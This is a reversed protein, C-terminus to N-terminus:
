FNSNFKLTWIISHTSRRAGKSDKAQSEICKANSPCQSDGECDPVPDCFKSPDEGQILINKKLSDQNSLTGCIRVYYGDQCVCEPQEQGKTERSPRMVCFANTGCQFDKPCNSFPVCDKGKEVYRGTEINSFKFIWNQSFISYEGM